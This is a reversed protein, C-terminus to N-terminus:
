FPRGLPADNTQDSSPKAPYWKNIKEEIEADLPAFQELFEPSLMAGRVEAAVVLAQNRCELAIEVLIHNALDAERIGSLAFGMAPGSPTQVLSEKPIRRLDVHAGHSYADWLDLNGARSALKRPSSAKGALWQEAHVGSEDALIADTRWCAETIRRKLGIAEPVYGAAVVLMCARATRFIMASIITVAAKRKGTANQLEIGELDTGELMALLAITAEDAVKLADLQSPATRLGAEETRSVRDRAPRTERKPDRV